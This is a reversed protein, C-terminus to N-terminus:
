TARQRGESESCAADISWRRASVTCALAPSTALAAFASAPHANALSNPSITLASLSPTEASGLTSSLLPRPILASTAHSFWSKSTWSITTAIITQHINYLEPSLFLFLSLCPHGSWARHVELGELARLAVLDIIVHAHKSWTASRLRPRTKRAM